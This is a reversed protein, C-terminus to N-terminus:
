VRMDGTMDRVEVFSLMRVHLMCLQSGAPAQPFGAPAECSNLNLHQRDIFFASHEQEAMSQLAGEVASPLGTAGMSLTYAHWTLSDDLEEFKHQAATVACEINVEFPPRPTQWSVGASRTLKIVHPHLPLPKAQVFGAITSARVTYFCAIKINFTGVLGACGRRHSWLPACQFRMCAGAQVDACAAPATRHDSCTWQACWGTAGHLERWHRLQVGRKDDCHQGAGRAHRCSLIVISIVTQARMPCHKHSLCKHQTM